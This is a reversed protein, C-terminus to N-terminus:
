SRQCALVARDTYNAQLSSAARSLVRLKNFFWIFARLDRTRNVILENSKETAGFRGTVSYSQPGSLRYCFNTRVIKM